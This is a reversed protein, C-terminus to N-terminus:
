SKDRKLTHLIMPSLSGLFNVASLSSRQQYLLISTVIVNIIFGLAILYHLNKKARTRQISHVQALPQAYSTIYRTGTSIPDELKKSWSNFYDCYRHPGTYIFEPQASTFSYAKHKTFHPGNCLSYQVSLFMVTCKNRYYSDSQGYTRTMLFLQYQQIETWLDDLGIM